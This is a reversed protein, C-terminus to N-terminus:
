WGVGAVAAPQALHGGLLFDCHGLPRLVAPLLQSLMRPVEPHHDQPV